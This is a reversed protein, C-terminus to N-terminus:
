SFLLWIDLLDLLNWESNSTQTKNKKSTSKKNLGKKTSKRSKKRTRGGVKKYRILKGDARNCYNGSTTQADQYIKTDTFFPDSKVSQSNAEVALPGTSYAAVTGHTHYPSWGSNM